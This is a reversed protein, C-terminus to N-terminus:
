SSKKLRFFAYLEFTCLEFAWVEFIRVEFTLTPSVNNNAESIGIESFEELFKKLCFFTCLEFAWVEFACVEFTLTLSVDDSAESIEIKSFEELLSQLMVSEGSNLYLAV